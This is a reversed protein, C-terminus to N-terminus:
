QVGIEKEIENIKDEEIDEDIQLRLKKTGIKKGNTNEEEEEEGKKIIKKKYYKPSIEEKESKITQIQSIESETKDSLKKYSKIKDIEDKKFIKGKFEDGKKESQVEEYKRLKSTSDTIPGEVRSYKFRLGVKPTEIKFYDKKM